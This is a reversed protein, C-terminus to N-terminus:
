AACDTVASGFNDRVYREAEERLILARGAVRTIVLNGRNRELYLFGRSVGLMVAFERVRYSVREFKPQSDPASSVNSM